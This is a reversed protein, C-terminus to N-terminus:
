SWRGSDILRKLTDKVPDLGSPRYPIPQSGDILRWITSAHLMTGLDRATLEKARRGSAVRRRGVPPLFGKHESIQSALLDDKTPPAIGKLTLGTLRAGDAIWALTGNPLATQPEGGGVDGHGGPFWRQQYPANPHSPDAGVKQNREELNEWPTVPFIVRREDLALAHRASRVHGGLNLDHFRYSSNLVHAMPVVSPVGRQGVTDFIGMYTVELIPLGDADGGGATVAASNNHRFTRAADGDFPAAKDRYLQFARQAESARGRQLIGCKRILGGLSRASFAGRSFGFIYIKDGPEYNFALFVFADVIGEELGAGILGGSIHGAASASLLGPAGVGRGYYVIQHNGDEDRHAVSQAIRGINTPRDSSIRQWTGDMCIAIRKMVLETGGGRDPRGARCGDRSCGHVRTLKLSFRIREISNRLSHQQLATNEGQM